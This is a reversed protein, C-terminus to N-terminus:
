ELDALEELNEIQFKILWGEETPDESVVTLDSAIPNVELVVGKSMAPLDIEGQNGEVVVLSDGSDFHDGEEPLEISELDGLSEIARSTLGLTLVSGRRTFWLKGGQFEGENPVKNTM